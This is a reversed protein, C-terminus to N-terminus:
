SSLATIKWVRPPKLFFKEVLEQCAPKEVLNPHNLGCKGCIRPRSPCTKECSKPHNLTRPRSPCAKRMIQPPEFGYKGCIRPRSLCTKGCSKPHNLAMNEVSEQTQFAIFYPHNLAVNKSCKSAESTCATGNSPDLPATASLM